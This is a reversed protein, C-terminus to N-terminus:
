LISGAHICGTFKVFCQKKCNGQDDSSKKKDSNNFFDTDFLDDFCDHGKSYLM